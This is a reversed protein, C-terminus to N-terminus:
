SATNSPVAEPSPISSPRKSSVTEVPIVSSQLSEPIVNLPTCLYQRRHMEDVHTLYWTGPFLDDICGVPTYNALHHTDQRLKMTDAFIKPAIKKRSDLRVTVDSLVESLKSLKSGPATDESFKISYLSSALGSGYSFLGVRKGAIDAVSNQAIYSVLGGYVSPTYMNGIQNALLLSPKVKKEFTAKSCAMFTKEVTRDFYTDELKLDRYAELGSFIGNETTDANSDRLFDNLMLRAFSKQVLKCYPSHFFMADFHGLSFPGTEKDKVMQTEAKTAYRQYCKDLASLYCQISLKGDVVPFESSLDPKFFDYVHQMHTGRLGREIVLPANPGILMAVSGAGGTPRANGTAYVAIDGAVVLAYRGDWASSEVWALANFLAATGGYCANTTDIGEINTNGCEEFLQMLVTKTSKSKDIITETGVELRGISEYSIDYNQMLKQVVTLCLSNIDERDSCFGMKDQGLGITYKGTSVGDFIELESQDVYQSPFYAEVAIIGVDDPWGVVDKSDSSPM